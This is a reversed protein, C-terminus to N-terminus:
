YSEFSVPATKWLDNKILPFRAPFIENMHKPSGTGDARWGIPRKESIYNLMPVNVFQGILKTNPFVRVYIDMLAQTDEM